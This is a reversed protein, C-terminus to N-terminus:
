NVFARVINLLNPVKIGLSYNYASPKSIKEPDNNKIPDEIKQYEVTSTTIEVSNVKYQGNSIKEIAAVMEQESIKGEDYEVNAFDVGEDKKFDVKALKVGEMKSLASEIKKVCAIGCSMGKVGIKATTKANDVSTAKVVTRKVTFHSENNTSVNSCGVLFLFAGLIGLVSKKMM